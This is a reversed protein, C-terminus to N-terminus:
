PKGMLSLKGYMRLASGKNNTGISGIDEGLQYNKIEDMRSVVLSRLKLM